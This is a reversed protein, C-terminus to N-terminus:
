RDDRRPDQDFESTELIGVIRAFLGQLEPHVGHQMSRSAVHRVREGKIGFKLKFADAGLDANSPHSRLAEWSGFRGTNEFDSVPLLDVIDPVALGHLHVRSM